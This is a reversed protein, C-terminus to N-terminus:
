DKSKGSPEGSMIERNRQREAQSAVRNNISQVVGIEVFCLPIDNPYGMGFLELFVHRKMHCIVGTRYVDSPDKVKGAVPATSKNPDVEVLAIFGDDYLKKHEKCLEWGTVTKMEFRQRLRTDMLINGTDESKCCIPCIAQEMTVHSKESV